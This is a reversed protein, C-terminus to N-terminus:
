NKNNYNHLTSYKTASRLQCPAITPWWGGADSGRTDEQAVPALRRPQNDNSDTLQRRGVTAELVGAANKSGRRDIRSSPVPVGGGYNM